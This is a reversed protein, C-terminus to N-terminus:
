AFLRRAQASGPVINGSLMRSEIAAVQARIKAISVEGLAVRHDDVMAAHLDMALQRGLVAMEDFCHAPQEVRPVDLLLTLGAIQMQKLTHHQFPSNDYNGLTFRTHEAEDVLHFTGDAQLSFGHQAAVRAIEAGSLLREGSPLINLGIMQDVEACFTDLEQACAAAAAIEPM